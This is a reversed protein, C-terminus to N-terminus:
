MSWCCLEVEAPVLTCRTQTLVPGVQPPYPPLNFRVRTGKLKTDKFIASITLIYEQTGGALGDFEM